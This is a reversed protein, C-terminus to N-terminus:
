LRVDVLRRAMEDATKVVQASARYAVEAEILRGFESGLDLGVEQVFVVNVGSGTARLGTGAVLSTTEAGIPTYGPTNANVINNAAATARSAGALLGSVAGSLVRTIAM